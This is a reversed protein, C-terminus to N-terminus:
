QTLYWKAFERFAMARHSFFNKESISMLSFVKSSGKPQFIPDFGFGTSTNSHIIELVIKGFIKGEFLEPEHKKNYCFAISSRFVATRNKINKMIKIIGNNGLTKYIYSAYPGPFGNLTEIFLGSDEVLIPINYKKFAETASHKAIEALSNSQIENEKVKLMCVVINFRSLAERAEFFKHINGTAFFVIKTKNKAKKSKIKEKQL